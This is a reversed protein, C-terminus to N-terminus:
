WSGPRPRKLEILDLDDLTIGARELVTATAPVPGIGMTEPPVGAVAWTVLRALPRLGLQEARERTTVICAAAGDNQGSANGATVTAQRGPTGPDAAAARAGRAHHRRAPARRHRRGPDARASRSRSPVLEDAFRGEQQAAVARQHSRLALEDQRERAIGHERRLNEATELMGGPVPHHEGGATV